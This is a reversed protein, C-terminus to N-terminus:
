DVLPYAIVDCYYEDPMRLINELRILTIRFRFPELYVLLYSICVNRNHRPISYDNIFWKYRLLICQEIRVGM